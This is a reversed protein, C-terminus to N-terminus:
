PELWACAGANEHLDIQEPVLPDLLQYNEALGVFWDVHMGDIGGGVDDARLCGDHTGGEPLELGDLDPSYLVTGHAIVDHDVAISVFPELPNSASGMGWPFGPGLEVFCSFGGGCPCAVNLLRDDLLKGTGELRLAVAFAYPVTALDSNACTQLTTDAAGSYDGEYAVWYYTLDVTGFYTGTDTDGDADADVDADTDTDSDTDADADTDTDADSDADTDADGGAPSDDDACGGLFVGALLILAPATNKTM